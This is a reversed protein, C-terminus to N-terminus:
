KVAPKLLNWFLPEVLESASDEQMCPPNKLIEASSSEGETLKNQLSGEKAEIVVEEDDETVQKHSQESRDLVREIMDM